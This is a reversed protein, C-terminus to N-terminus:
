EPKVPATRGRSQIIQKKIALKKANTQRNSIAFSHFAM